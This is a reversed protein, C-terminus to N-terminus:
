FCWSAAVLVAGKYYIVIMFGASNAGQQTVVAIDKESM